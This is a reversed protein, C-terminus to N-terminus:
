LAYTMERLINHYQVNLLIEQAIHEPRLLIDGCEM